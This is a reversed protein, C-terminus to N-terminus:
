NGKAQEIAQMMGGMNGLDMVQVGPPLEFASAPQAGRAVSTTEWVARGDETAGLIIGDSTVCATRTSGEETQTWEAGSQGAASCAGTRTATQALDGQWSTTPDQFQAAGSMDARMAMTRGGATVLVLSEGTANDSIITSDGEDTSFEMRVKQGDRVMVVPVSQGNDGHITAELRYSASSMNPFVGAGNSAGDSNSATDSGSPNCAGLALAAALTVFISRM